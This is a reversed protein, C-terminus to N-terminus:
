TAKEFTDVEGQYCIDPFAQQTDKSLEPDKAVMTVPINNKGTKSNGYYKIGTTYKHNSTYSHTRSIVNAQQQSFWAHQM